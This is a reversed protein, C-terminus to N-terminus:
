EVIVKEMKELFLPDFEAGHGPSDTLTVKSGSFVVGGIVPDEKYHHITDLDAFKINTKASILHAGASIGVRTEFMGGVMCAIGAAEGIANIKLGNHIGGSKALKINFYDCANMRALHLADHHDFITEDAMIPIPSHEHIFKLGEPNWHNTPEECFEINYPYLKKLTSIATTPSWGQNADLRIPIDLGIAERITQIRELDDKETTGLKVKITTVGEEEYNIAKQAMQDPTDIGITFDTFIDKKAGGLYTYLPLDTVKGALDYLAIDFASKATTNYVLFNNIEKLREEIELPNKGLLLKALSKSSEFCIDQTEGTIFWYPSGEGTGFLGVNTHIIVAIGDGKTAQGLSIKFPSIFDLSIKYIDISTIKIPKM